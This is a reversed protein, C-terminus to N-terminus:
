AGVVAAAEMDLLREKLSTGGTGSYGGLGGDSKVVRHCPVILPLPNLRMATGVARAAGPHGVRRALEGYSVTEGYPVRTCGNWVDRQFDSGSQFDFPTDFTTPKGECYDCLQRTFSPLLSRDESADAFGSQITREVVDASRKPMIMARLGCDSAVFGCWGLETEVVRYRLNM